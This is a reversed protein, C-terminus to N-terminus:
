LSRHDQGHSLGGLDSEFYSEPRRAPTPLASTEFCDDGVRRKHTLCAVRPDDRFPLADCLQAAERIRTIRRCGLDEETGAFREAGRDGAEDVNEAWLQDEDAPFPCLAPRVHGASEVLAKARVDERRETADGDLDIRPVVDFPGDDRCSEDQTRRERWAVLPLGVVRDTGPETPLRVSRLHDGLRLM